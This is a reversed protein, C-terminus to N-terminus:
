RSFTVDKRTRHLEWWLVTNKPCAKISALIEIEMKIEPFVLLM